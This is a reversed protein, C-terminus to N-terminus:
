FSSFIVRDPLYISKKLLVADKLGLFLQLVM